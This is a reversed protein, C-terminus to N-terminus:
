GSLGRKMERSTEVTEGTDLWCFLLGKKYRKTVLVM